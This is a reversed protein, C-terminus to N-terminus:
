LVTGRFIAERVLDEFRSVVSLRGEAFSWVCSIWTDHSDLLLPSLISSVGRRTPIGLRAIAAPAFIDPIAPGGSM